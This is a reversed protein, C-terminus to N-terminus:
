SQRARDIAQAAITNARDNSGDDLIVLQGDVEHVDFTEMTEIDQVSMKGMVQLGARLRMHGNVCEFTKGNLRRVNINM